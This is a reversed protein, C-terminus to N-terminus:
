EAATLALLRAISLERLAMQAELLGPETEIAEELRMFMNRQEPSM